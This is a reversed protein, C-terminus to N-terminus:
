FITALKFSWHKQAENNKLVVNMSTVEEKMKRETGDNKASLQERAAFWAGVKPDIFNDSDLDVDDKAPECAYGAVATDVGCWEVAFSPM